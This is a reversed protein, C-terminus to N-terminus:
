LRCIKVNKIYSEHMGETRLAPNKWYFILCNFTGNMSVINKAWMGVLYAEDFLFSKQKSNMKLRNFVFKPISLAVFCAVVSLCSPINKYSSVKRMDPYIGYNWRSKKAITFLKYNMFLLPPIFIIVFILVSVPYLTVSRLFVLLLVLEVFILIALLALLKRKTLSTRHFIPYCTAVWRKSNMVVLGLLFFSIFATSIVDFTQLWPDGITIGNGIM